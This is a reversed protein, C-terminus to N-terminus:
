HGCFRGRQEVRPNDVAAIIEILQVFQRVATDIEDVDVRREVRIAVVFNKPALGLLLAAEFVSVFRGFGVDLVHARAADLQLAHELFGAAEVVVAVPV